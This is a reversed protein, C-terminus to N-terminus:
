RQALGDGDLLVRDALGRPPDLIRTQERAETSIRAVEGRRARGMRDDGAGGVGVGGRAGRGAWGRTPGRSGGGAALPGPTSATRVPVSSAASPRPARGLSEPRLRASPEAAKAVGRGASARSRTRWTPSGTASTTASVR